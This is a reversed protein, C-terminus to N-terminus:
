CEKGVRREESRPMIGLTVHGSLHDTTHAEHVYGKPIYLVDGPCLTVSLSPEVPTWAGDFLQKKTPPPSLRDYVSWHKSGEFQLIFVDHNDWHPRFGQAERPTLYVNAQVRSPFVKEALHRLRLGGPSHREYSNLIITFGEHLWQFIKEKDATGDATLAGSVPVSYTYARPNVEEGSRVVRIGPQRVDGNGLYEDVSEVSIIAEFYRPAGRRIFLPLKDYYTALFEDLSTPSLLSAFDNTM